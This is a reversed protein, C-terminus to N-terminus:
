AQFLKNLAGDLAGPDLRVRTHSAVFLSQNRNYFAVFTPLLLDRIRSLLIGRLQLDPVACNAQSQVTEDLDASFTKLREKATMGGARSEVAEDLLAGLAQWGLLYDSLLSDVICQYKKQSELTLLEAMSCSRFTKVIYNYNNLQFLASVMPRRYMCSQRELLGELGKLIDQYYLAMAFISPEAPVLGLLGNWDPQAWKSLLAEAIREFVMIRKLCNMLSSTPGYVTANAPPPSTTRHVDQFDDMLAKLLDVAASTLTKIAPMLMLSVDRIPSTAASHEVYLDNCSEVADLIAIQEYFEHKGLARRLRDGLTSVCQQIMETTGKLARRVAEGTLPSPLVKVALRTELQALVFFRGVLTILPHSGPPGTQTKPQVWFNEVQLLFPQLSQLLSASRVESYGGLLDKRTEPTSHAEVVFSAINALSTQLGESLIVDKDESGLTPENLSVEELWEKYKQLLSDM